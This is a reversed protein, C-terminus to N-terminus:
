RKAPESEPRLVVVRMVDSLESARLTLKEEAAPVPVGLQKCFDDVEGLGVDGIATRFQMPIVLKPELASVVEAATVPSLVSGGGAPLLLVDVDSLAETQEETLAHGLDGLHCVRMGEVEIMYVTNYGRDKGRTDDHYTRIGTVFIDHMEYEGPGRVVQFEPKVLSLNAHGPHDHSITVVDATQKAAAYGTSRDVPDTLVTAERARIRFCNHGFWRFEAM